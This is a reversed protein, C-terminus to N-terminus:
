HHTSWTAKHLPILAHVLFEKHEAKLPVSFGSIVSDWFELLAQVGFHLECEYIVKLFEHQISRRIFNRLTVFKCYIRHIIIGLYDRERPDESDFLELLRLVFNADVYKKAIKPDVANCVIFRLFFEYVLQLHPWAAALYRNNTAEADYVSEIGHTHAPLSRFINKSVMEVVEGILSESKFCNTASGVYEVLELLTERKLAKDAM